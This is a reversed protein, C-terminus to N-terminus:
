QWVSDEPRLHRISSSTHLVGAATHVNFINAMWCKNVFVTSAVQINLILFHFTDAIYFATVNQALRFVSHTTSTTLSSMRLSILDRRIEVVRSSHLLSCLLAITLSVSALSRQACTCSNSHLLGAPADSCSQCPWRQLQQWRRRSTALSVSVISVYFCCARM